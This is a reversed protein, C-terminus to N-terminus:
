EVYTAVQSVEAWYRWNRPDHQNTIKFDESFTKTGGPEVMVDYLTINQMGAPNCNRTLADLLVTEVPTTFYDPCSFLQIAFTVDKAINKASLNKIAGSFTWSYLDPLEVQNGENNWFVKIGNALRRKIIAIDGPQLAIRSQITARRREGTERELTQTDVDPKQAERREPSDIVFFFVLVLGAIVALVGLALGRTAKSDTFLWAVVLALVFLFIWGIV